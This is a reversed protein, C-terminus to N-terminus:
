QGKGGEADPRTADSKPALAFHYMYLFTLPNRTEFEHWNELSAGHKDDPFMKLYQSFVEPDRQQFGLFELDLEELADRIQLLDFVHEQRHFMLDRCDSMNFFDNFRMIDKIPDNHDRELIQKRFARISEKDETYGQEQILARAPELIQRAIRSYVSIMMYGDPRLLGRLIRWGELPDRMHHLVGSCQVLHFKRELQGLELIDGQMFDAYDVGNEEALRKAVALSAKSLDVALCSADKIVGGFSFVPGGTGCGAILIDFKGKHTVPFPRAYPLMQRLLRDFRIKGVPKVVQTLRPYPNEEYQGQVAESVADSIPSLSPIDPKIREEYAPEKVQVTLLKGLARPWNYSLLKDAWSERHLPRYSAWLAIAPAAPQQGSLLSSVLRPSLAALFAQEEETEWSVYECRFQAVALAALLDLYGNPRTETDAHDQEFLLFAHRLDRLLLEVELRNTVTNRLYAIWIPRNLVALFAPDKLKQVLVDPKREPKELKVSLLPSFEPNVILLKACARSLEKINCAKSQFGKEVTKELLPEPKSLQLSDIVRIFGSWAGELESDLHLAVLYHRLASAKNDINFHSHAINTHLIADQPHDRLLIELAAIAEKDRGLEKLISSLMRRIDANDSQYDLARYLEPVAEEYRYLKVLAKGLASFLGFNAAGSMKARRLTAVGEQLKGQQLQSFGLNMVTEFSQPMLKELREFLKEADQPRGLGLAALALSSLVLSDSGLRDRLPTLLREAEAYDEQRLANRAKSIVEQDSQTPLTM